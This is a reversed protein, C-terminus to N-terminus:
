GTALTYVSLHDSEATIRQAAKDDRGDFRELMETTEADVWWVDLDGDTQTQPCRAYDIWIEVPQEFEFHEHGDAEIDVVAYRSAPVTVSIRTPRDVAGAPIAIGGGDVAVTGGRHPVILASTSRTRSTSCVLPEESTAGDSAIAARPADADRITEAAPATSPSETCAAAALAVACTLVGFLSTSHRM